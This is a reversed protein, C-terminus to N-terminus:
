PNSNTLSRQDQIVTELIHQAEEWPQVANKIQTNSSDAEAILITFIISLFMNVGLANCKM